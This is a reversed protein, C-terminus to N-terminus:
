VIERCGITQFVHLSVFNELSGTDISFPVSFQGIQLTLDNDEDTDYLNSDSATVLVDDVFTTPLRNIFQSELPNNEIQHMKQRPIRKGKLKCLPTNVFHGKLNCTHCTQDCKGKQHKYLCRACYIIKSQVSSSSDSDSQTLKHVQRM